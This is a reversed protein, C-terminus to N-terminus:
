FQADKASKDIILCHCVPVYVCYIDRAYGCSDTCDLIGNASM